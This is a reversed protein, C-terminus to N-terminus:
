ECFPIINHHNSISRFLRLRNIFDKVSREGISYRSNNDTVDSYAITPTLGLQTEMPKDEN